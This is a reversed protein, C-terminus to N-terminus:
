LEDPEVSLAELPPGGHRMGTVIEPEYGGLGGDTTDEIISALPDGEDELPTAAQAQYESTGGLEEVSPRNQRNPSGERADDKPTGEHRHHKHHQPKRTM